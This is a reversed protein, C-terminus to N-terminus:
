MGVHGQLLTPFATEPDLCPPASLLPVDKSPPSWQEVAPSSQASVLENLPRWAKNASTWPNLQTNTPTQGCQSAESDMGGVHGM